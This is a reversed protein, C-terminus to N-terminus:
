HEAEPSWWPAARMQAETWRVARGAPLAQFILEVGRSALIDLIDMEAPALSVQPLLPMRGASLGLCGVNLVVFHVGADYLCLAASPSPAIVLHKDVPEAFSSLADVAAVAPGIWLSAHAPSVAMLVSRAIPDAALADDVIVLRQLALTRVWNVLVQGHLLRDDIRVLGSYTFSCAPASL